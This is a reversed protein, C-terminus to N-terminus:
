LSASRRTLGRYLTFLLWILISLSTVTRFLHAEAGISVQLIANNVIM